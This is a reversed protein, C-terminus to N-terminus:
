PLSISPSMGQTKCIRSRRSSRRRTQWRYEAEEKSRLPYRESRVDTQPQEHHLASSTDKMLERLVAARPCIIIKVSKPSASERVVKMAVHRIRVLLGHAGERM